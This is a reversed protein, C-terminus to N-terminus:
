RQQLDVSRKAVDSESAGQLQETLWNLWSVDEGRQKRAQQILTLNRATTEPEWKEREHALADSLASKARGQDGALVALELRTAYDWYDPEKAAIKREVSYEVVSILAKRRDDPPEQIEMLTVANIGPYADRWDSEFGQLYAAIAKKLWGEALVARKAQREEEWCDKYIRGLIGNTESSPGRESILDSLLKIARDRCVKCQVNNGQKAYEGAQRNLAFALQERMMVTRAVPAPLENALRIMEAWAKVSRYSLFLDVLVGVEENALGPKGKIEEEVRKVAPLGAARAEVLESKRTQSYEARERFVDTKAHELEKLHERWPLDVLQFVPSDDAGKRAENLM